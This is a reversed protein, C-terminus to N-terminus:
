EQKYKMYSELNRLDKQMNRRQRYTQQLEEIVPLVAGVGCVKEMVILKECLEHYKGNHSAFRTSNRIDEVFAACIENSCRPGFVEGYRYVLNPVKRLVSLAAQMEDEELLIRIAGEPSFRDVVKALVSRRSEVWTGRKQHTEKLVRYFSERGKDTLYASKSHRNFSILEAEEPSDLASRDYGRWSRRSELESGENEVWSTLYLLVLSLSEVLTEEKM